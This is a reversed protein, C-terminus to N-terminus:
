MKTSYILFIVVVFFFLSPLLTSLPTLYIYNLFFLHYKKYLSIKNLIKQLNETNKKLKEKLIFLPLLLLLLLLYYIHVTPSQSIKLPLQSKNQENNNNNNRKKLQKKKTQQHSFFLHSFTNCTKVNM